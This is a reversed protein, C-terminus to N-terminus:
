DNNKLFFIKDIYIRRINQGEWDYNWFVVGSPVITGIQSDNLQHDEVILMYNQDESKACLAEFYQTDIDANMQVAATCFNGWITKFEEHTVDQSM